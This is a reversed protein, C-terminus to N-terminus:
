GAVRFCRSLARTLMEANLLAYKGLEHGRELIGTHRGCLEIPHRLFDRLQPRRAVSSDATADGGIAVAHTQMLM